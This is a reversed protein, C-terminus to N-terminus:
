SPRRTSTSRPTPRAAPSNSRRRHRFLQRDAIASPRCRCARSAAEPRDPGPPEGPHHQRCVGDARQREGRGHASRLDSDAVGLFRGAADGRDAGHRLAAGDAPRLHGRLQRLLVAQEARHPRRAHRRVPEPAGGAERDGAPLFYPGRRSGRTTTTNSRALRPVRQHREQDAREGVHRRVPGSRRRLQQDRRQGDRDGRAGSRVRGRAAALPQQLDRRRHPDRQREAHHRESNFGLGRAPNVAVSHMNEPPSVGPVTVFLNQYNRGLPVPLNTSSSAVPDGTRVDARDTQLVAASPAHRHGCRDAAGVVLMTRRADRQEADGVVGTTVSERFGTLAVRVTFTGLPVTAFRRRATRTAPARRTWNTETQVLTVDAGPVAAGTQDRVDVVLSGYSCRPRRVAPRHACRWRCVPRGSQGGTAVTQWAQM